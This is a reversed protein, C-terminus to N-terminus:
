VTVTKNNHHGTVLQMCKLTFQCHPSLSLNTSKTLNTEDQEIEGKALLAATMYIWSIWKYRYNKISSHEGHQAVLLLVIEANEYHLSIQMM